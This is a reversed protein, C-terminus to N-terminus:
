PAMSRSQAGLAQFSAQGLAASHSVLVVIGALRLMLLPALNYSPKSHKMTTRKAPLNIIAAAVFKGSGVTLALGTQAMLKRHPM